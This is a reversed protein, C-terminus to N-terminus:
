LWGFGRAVIWLVSGFGGVMIPVLIGLLWRFQSWMDSRVARIENRVDLIEAQINNLRNEVSHQWPDIGGGSGSGGPPLGRERLLRELIDAVRRDLLTTDISQGDKNRDTM